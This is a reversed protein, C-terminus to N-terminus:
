TPERSLRRSELSLCHKSKSLDKADGLCVKTCRIILLLYEIDTRKTIIISVKKILKQKPM